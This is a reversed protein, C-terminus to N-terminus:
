DLSARRHPFAVLLAQAVAIEPMELTALFGELAPALLTGANRVDPTTEGREDCRPDAGAARRPHRERSGSAPM